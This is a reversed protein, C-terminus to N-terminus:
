LIDGYILPHGIEGIRAHSAEFYRKWFRIIREARKPDLYREQSAGDGSWFYGLGMVYVTVGPSFDALMDAQKVKEMEKDPSISRVHGKAYFSTISSNELMDSVILVIKRKVRSQRVLGALTRINYIIDSHPIEKNSSSFISEMAQHIINNARVKQLATRKELCIRLLRAVRIPLDYLMEEDAPPDISAEAVPEAYRQRVGASFRFIKVARGPKMWSQVHNEVRKIFHEDLGVTEDIAVFLMAELPQKVGVREYCSSAHRRPVAPAGAAQAEWTALMCLVVAMLIMRGNM